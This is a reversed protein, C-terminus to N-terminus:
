IHLAVCVCKCICDCVTVNASGKYLWAHLWRYVCVCVCLRIKTLVVCATTILCLIQILNLAFHVTPRIFRSESSGLLKMILLHCHTADRDWNCALRKHRHTCCAYNSDGPLSAPSASSCSVSIAALYIAHTDAHTRADQWLIQRLPVFPRLATLM